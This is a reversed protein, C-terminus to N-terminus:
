SAPDTRETIRAADRRCLPLTHLVVALFSVM